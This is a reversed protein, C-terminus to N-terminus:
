WTKHALLRTNWITSSTQVMKFRVVWGVNVMNWWWQDLNIGDNWWQLYVVCRHVALTCRAKGGRCPWCPRVRPEIGPRWLGASHQRRHTLDRLIELNCVNLSGRWLVSGGCNNQLWQTKQLLMGGFGHIFRRDLPLDRTCRVRIICSPGTEPM